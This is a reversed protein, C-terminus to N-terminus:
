WIKQALYEEFIPLAKETVDEQYSSIEVGDKKIITSSVIKGNLLILDTQIETKGM